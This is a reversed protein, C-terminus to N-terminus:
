SSTSSNIVQDSNLPLELRVELGGGDRTLLSIKGSHLKAIKDVIALGLGAGVQGRAPNLRTFPQMLRQREFEPIGPGSDSVKVIISDTVQKTYIEIEPGGHRLANDLLNSLLRQMALPKFSVAPLTQLHLSINKGRRSFRESVERILHNLDGQGAAEDSGERVYGLFQSVIADMDEIDQIMSQRLEPDTDKALMEVALRVRSLPTRLDHSVGALLLNRDRNLQAVDQAM